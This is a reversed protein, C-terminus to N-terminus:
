NCNIVILQSQFETLRRLSFLRSVVSIFLFTICKHAVIKKQLSVCVRPVLTNDSSVETIDANHSFFNKQAPSIQKIAESLTLRSLQDTLSVASLEENRSRLASTTMPENIVRARTVDDCEHVASVTVTAGRQLASDPLWRPSRSVRM